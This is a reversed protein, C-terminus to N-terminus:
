LANRSKSGIKGLRELADPELVLPLEVLKHRIEHGVGVDDLVPSSEM